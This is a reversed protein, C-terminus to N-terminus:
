KEKSDYVGLFIYKEGVVDFVFWKRVCLICQQPPMQFYPRHPRMAKLLDDTLFTVPLTGTWLKHFAKEFERYDEHFYNFEM